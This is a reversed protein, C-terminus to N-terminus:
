RKQPVGKELWKRFVFLSVPSILAICAYILWMTGSDAPGGTPVFRELMLGSYFGTTAKALFWPIGAIGMYAGVKGAPAVDAIYELFRSSWLAEGLSFVVVYVILSALHPGPVLIFTTIASVSTGAIMMTIISKRRSLAAFLPVFIVIILPNIAQFWEYRAFIAESFCRELYHPLTLWQHAFLTRVPLLIFIFMIFRPDLFPLQRVKEWLTMEDEKEDKIYELYRDRDEVKKTFFLLNALLLLGTVGVLFIFVGDIGHRERIFPSIFTEAFIGLNMISYLISYGITATRPDTFEKVGAYLAPQIIGEAVAMILLATWLTTAVSGGGLSSSGVLLTRGVVLILLCLTLAKRVGLKDSVFGGGLMFLTVGGTFLSVSVGTLHDSFGINGHIFLTLLTLIGFYAVGDGFNILNVQWFARSAGFLIRLNDRLSLLEAGEASVGNKPAITAHSNAGSTPGSAPNNKEVNMKERTQRNDTEPNSSKPEMKQPEIHRPENHKAPIM